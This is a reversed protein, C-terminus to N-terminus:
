GDDRDTDPDVNDGNAGGSDGGPDPTPTTGGPPDLTEGDQGPEAGSGPEDQGPATTTSAPREATEPVTTPTDDDDSGCAGLGTAALVAVAGAMMRTRRM